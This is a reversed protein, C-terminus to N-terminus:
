DRKFVSHDLFDAWTTEFWFDEEPIPRCDEWSVRIKGDVHSLHQIKNTLSGDDMKGKWESELRDHFIEGKTDRVIYSGRSGGGQKLYDRIAELYFRHTLVLHRNRLAHPLQEIRNIKIEGYRKQQELADECAKEIAEADRVFAAYMTMRAQIEKRYDRTNSDYGASSIRRSLERMKDLSLNLRNLAKEKDLTSTRYSGAIKQSARFAGVQGSNLATGGPRYVGHSGNVEGIPFLHNINTSEWWIDGSLGGNNHQACVGVALPEKHLDINHDLYLEIAKPNLQELREIPTEGTLGSQAWYQSTEKDLLSVHFSGLRPDKTINNRFDIFVDRGLIQSERYVLIDILSSGENEIKKPDFPWQYGKLFIAQCLKTMSSFFSNLFDYEQGTKKDRSFYRPIVQQYSGSLNWRFKLSGLGYQSETLSSTEAGIELALGISGIHVPPYVSDKYLGGPGGVGFILNDCLIGKIREQDNELNTKDLLVVGAIRKEENEGITVLKICDHKNLLPIRLRKVERELYEVMVRSTYPGLSTGRNLPDHDTKYGTYGGYKNFPFPVGLGTLHYFGSESGLAEALAIDGHMSGGGYLAKAMSYPSDPTETSDSLKYYTQKDSGTNRSTGGLLNDTVILLDEIGSRYLRIAACLSAAGTGLILTHYHTKM